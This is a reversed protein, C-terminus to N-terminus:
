LCRKKCNEFFTLFCKNFFKRIKQFRCKSMYRGFNPANNFYHKKPQYMKRLNIGSDVRTTAALLLGLFINSEAVTLKKMYSSNKNRYYKTERTSRTLEVQKRVQSNFLEVCNEMVTEPFIELKKKLRNVKTPDICRYDYVPHFDGSEEVHTNKNEIIKKVTWEVTKSKNYPVYVKNGVM